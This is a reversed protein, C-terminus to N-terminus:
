SNKNLTLSIIHDIFESLSVGVSDLAKPLISNETLGPLTNVELIYIGRKPHIIFDYNSYHEVKMNRHIIKALRELEIKDEFSFNAPCIKDSVKVYKSDFDFFDKDNPLRIEVPPCIYIDNNRFNDIAVVSAEKGTILEEVIVSTKENVGNEFAKVLDVFDKCVFIGMSSGGSVPKVIWPPPIRKIVEKAKKIAYFNRPGDLDELYASFLLHKPTKVGIKEFLDKALVKNYGIRSVVSNSGTFPINFSELDKQIKGDEGYDGHLANFVVDIKDRLSELSIPIGNLHWVGNKDIFIDYPTYKDKLDSNRISSIINGGTKLSINYEGSLGGRIIGVRIM